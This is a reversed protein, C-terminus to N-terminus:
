APPPQHLPASVVMATLGARRDPRGAGVSPGAPPLDPCGCGSGAPIAPATGYDGLPLLAGPPSGRGASSRTSHRGLRQRVLLRQRRGPGPDDAVAAARRAACTAPSIRCTRSCPRAPPLPRVPDVPARQSLGAAGARRGPLRESQCLRAPRCPPRVLRLRDQRVTGVLTFILTFSLYLIFPLPFSFDLDPSQREGRERGPECGPRFSLLFTMMLSVVQLAGAHTRAAPERTRM